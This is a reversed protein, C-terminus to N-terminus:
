LLSVPDVDVELYVRSDKGKEYRSLITRAASHLTGMSAGRLILQRRFNGAIVGIPCEAPGLTDADKPVLPMALSALRAIAADARKEEKSRV